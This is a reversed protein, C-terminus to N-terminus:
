PHGQYPQDRRAMSRKIARIVFIAVVIIGVVFACLIGLLVLSLGITPVPTIDIPPNGALRSLMLVAILRLFGSGM